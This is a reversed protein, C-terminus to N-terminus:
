ATDCADVSKIMEEYEKLIGAKKCKTRFYVDNFKYKKFKTAETKAYEQFEKTHILKKSLEYIKKNNTKTFTNLLQLNDYQKLTKIFDKYRKFNDVYDSQIIKIINTNKVYKNLKTLLLNNYKPLKLQRYEVYMIDYFIWLLTNINNTFFPLIQFIDLKIIKSKMYILLLLYIVNIPYVYSLFSNIDDKYTYIDLKSMIYRNKINDLVKMKTSHPVNKKLFKNYKNIDPNSLLDIIYFRLKGKICCTAKIDEIMNFQYYENLMYKKQKCYSTKSLVSKYKIYPVQSVTKELCRKIVLDLSAKTLYKDINM